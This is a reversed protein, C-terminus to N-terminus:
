FTAEGNFATLEFKECPDGNTGLQLGVPALVNRREHM